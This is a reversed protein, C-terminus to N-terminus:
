INQEHTYTQIKINLFGLDELGDMIKVVNEFFVKKEIALILVQDQSFAQNISTFIDELDSINLTKNSISVKNDAFIYVIQEFEVNGQNFNDTTPLELDIYQNTTVLNEKTM